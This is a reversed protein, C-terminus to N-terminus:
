KKKPAPAGGKAAFRANYKRVLENTVDLSAPAYMIGSQNKELVFTFGEAAAIEKVIQGMKDFLASMLERERGGLEQQLQRLLAQAEGFKRELEAAKETKAQESLVVAQKEFDAQLKKLEAEKADLKKQKEDFERKLQARAAKGEEVESVARQLDVYGIKLEAARVVGPALMGVVLLSALVSAHRM